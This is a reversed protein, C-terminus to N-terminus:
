TNLHHLSVIIIMNLKRKEKYRAWLIYGLNLTNSLIIILLISPGLPASSFPISSFQKILIKM